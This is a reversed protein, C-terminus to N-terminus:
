FFLCATLINSRSHHSYSCELQFFILYALHWLLLEFVHPNTCRGILVRCLINSLYQQLHSISFYLM